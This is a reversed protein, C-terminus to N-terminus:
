ARTGRRRVAVLGVLTSGLLLWTGPEPVATRTVNDIAAVTHFGDKEDIVDFVVTLPGVLAAFGGSSLDLTLSFLMPMASFTM